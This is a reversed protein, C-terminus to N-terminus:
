KKVYTARFSEFPPADGLIVHSLVSKPRGEADMQMVMRQVMPEGRMTGHSTSLLAGDKAFWADMTSFEGFSSVYAGVLCKKGEDWAWFVEGEYQGPVGEANGVTSGHMVAGGFVPRFTDTGRIKMVPAGPAPVVEGTLEYEGACKGLRTISEGVVTSDFAATDWAGDFGDGGRAFRGDVISLSPGQAMLMDVTHVLEDGVVKLTSRQAFPAGNQHLRTMQLLTGDPLVTVDEIHVVGTNAASVAVYQGNERDWGWYHRMVLPAPSGEFDIRFDERIWFDGLAKRFTGRASWKTPPAGPGFTATGTGHWNGVLPELKKLQPAPGPIGDQAVVPFVLLVTVLAAVRPM